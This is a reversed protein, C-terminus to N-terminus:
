QPPLHSEVQAPCLGHESSGTTGLWCSPGPSPTAATFWRVDLLLLVDLFAQAPFGPSLSNLTCVGVCVGDYEKNKETTAETTANRKEGVGRM